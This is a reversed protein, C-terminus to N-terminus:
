FKLLADEVQTAYQTDMVIREAKRERYFVLSTTPAIRPNVIVSVYSRVLRPYRERWYEKLQEVILGYRIHNPHNRGMLNLSM